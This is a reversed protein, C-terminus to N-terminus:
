KSELLGSGALSLFEFLELAIEIILDPWNRRMISMYYPIYRLSPKQCLWMDRISCSNRGLMYTDLRM